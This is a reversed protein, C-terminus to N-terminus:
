INKRKTLKLGLTRCFINNYVENPALYGLCKIPRNNLLDQVRKVKKVFLTTYKTRKPFFERILGSTNENTPREYSSYPHAFYISIDLDREIMEYDNFGVGNDYTITKIKKNKLNKNVRDKITEKKHNALLDIYTYRSKRDVHTLLGTSRPQLLVTDGELHGLELRKDIEEPRTEVSKKNTDKQRSEIRINTRYRRRYRNKKHRLYKYLKPRKYVYRYITVYGIHYNNNTEM